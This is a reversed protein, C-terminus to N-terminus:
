ILAHYKKEDFKALTFFTPRKYIGDFYDKKGLRYSGIRRFSKFVGGFNIVYENRRIINNYISSVYLNLGLITM